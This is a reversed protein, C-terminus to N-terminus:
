DNSRKRVLRRPVRVVCEEAFADGNYRRDGLLTRAESVHLHPVQRQPYGPGIVRFWAGESKGYIMARPNM